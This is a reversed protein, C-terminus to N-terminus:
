EIQYKDNVGSLIVQNYGYNSAYGPLYLIKGNKDAAFKFYYVNTVSPLTAIFNTKISTARPL